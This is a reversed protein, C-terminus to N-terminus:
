ARMKVVMLLWVCQFVALAVMCCWYTPRTTPSAPIDAECKQCRRNVVHQEHDCHACVVRTVLAFKSGFRWQGALSVLCLAFYFGTVALLLSLLLAPFSFASPNATIAFALQVAGIAIPFVLFAQAARLTTRISPMAQIV